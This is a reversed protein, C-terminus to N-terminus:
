RSTGGQVKDKTVQTQHTMEYDIGLTEPAGFEKPTIYKGREKGTKEVEEVLPHAKAYADQRIGTVQWSIKMGAKGGAIKFANSTVEEAIYVPAYGGICTLQYRFDRNLAQFYSPLQVVAEGSADLAVIGDYVNKMDPSEVFSHYLYKNQPDLPHDIMFGGGVKNLFGSVRVKGVFYGAYGGFEDGVSGGYIGYGTSSYGYVGAGGGDSHGHVGKGNLSRGFVGDGNDNDGHVGASGSGGSSGYVGDASGSAGNLGKGYASYGYVGEGGGSNNASIVAGPSSASGAPLLLSSKSGSLSASSVVNGGLSLPVSVSLTVNGSTGGGTLGTGATVGTITGAGGASAITLTSGSPTITVNSGAALTINDKLSNISKVVQSNGISASTVANAAITPNPYTGSLGGGAAGTPPLTVGSALKAQTVAGDQIKASTVANDALLTSGLAGSAIKASTVAGDALQTTGVGGNAIGVTVSGSSGGGTLGTGANVTTITGGGGGSAAITLSNGSPTVTVNTGAVITVDDKLTNLSKVVQGSAIKGSTVAGDQIKSTTVANDGLQTSGLAGGAIKSSTVAGDALQATGVGGNAIGVTVSGSSGGGALGTGPNVATITGGGGGSSAITLTNGTPTITVNTGASITVDDKLTNLSKVVQGAPIKASTVAGDPVSAASMSYVSSTLPLRPTLESGGAVTVGLWYQKDFTLTLPSVSGLITNFVGKTVTVSQAETWLSTGGSLADYLRFTMDYNGDSVTKGTADALVGQYSITKPIQAYNTTFLFLLATSLIALARSTPAVAGIHMRTSRTLYSHTMIEEM